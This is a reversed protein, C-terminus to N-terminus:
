HGAEHCWTLLPRREEIAVAYFDTTVSTYRGLEVRELEVKYPRDINGM